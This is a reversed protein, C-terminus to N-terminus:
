SQGALDLLSVLWGLAAMGAIVATVLVARNTPLRRPAVTPETTFRAKRGGPVGAAAPVVAPDLRPLLRRGATPSPKPPKEGVPLALLPEEDAIPLPSTQAPPVSLRPPIDQPPPPLRSAPHPLVATPPM